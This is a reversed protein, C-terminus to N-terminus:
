LVSLSSLILVFVVRESVLYLKNTQNISRCCVFVANM